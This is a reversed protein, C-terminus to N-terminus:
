PMNTKHELGKIQNTYKCGTLIHSVYQLQSANSCLITLLDRVLPQKFYAQLAQLM